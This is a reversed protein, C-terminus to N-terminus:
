QTRTLSRSYLSWGGRSAMKGDVVSAKMIKRDGAVLAKAEALKRDIRELEAAKRYIDSKDTMLFYKHVGRNLAM